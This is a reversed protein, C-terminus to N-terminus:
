WENYSNEKLESEIRNKGDSTLNAVSSEIAKQERKASYYGGVMGAGAFALGAIQAMDSPRYFPEVVKRYQAGVIARIGNGLVELKRILFMQDDHWERYRATLIGQQYEREYLGAQRLLEGDRISETAFEIANPVMRQQRDREYNYDGFYIDKSTKLLNQLLNEAAVAQRIAFGSSGYMNLSLAEADIDPLTDQEFGQTLNDEASDYLSDIKPNVNIDDGELVGQILSRANSIAQTSNRARDSLAAIGDIEDTNRTAYTDYANPISGDYEYLKFTESEPNSIARSDSLYIKVDDNMWEPIPNEVTVNHSGSGGGM